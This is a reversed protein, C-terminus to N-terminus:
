GGWTNKCHKLTIVTMNLLQGYGGSLGLSPKLLYSKLKIYIGFKFPVPELFIVM